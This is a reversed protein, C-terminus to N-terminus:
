RKGTLRTLQNWIGASVPKFIYTKRYNVTECVGFRRKFPSIGAGFKDNEAANVSVQGLYYRMFGEKRLICAVKWHLYHSAGANNRTNGGFAYAASTGFTTVCAASLPKTGESVVFIRAMRVAAMCRFFHSVFAPNPQQQPNLGYTEALLRNLSADDGDDTLALGANEAKRIQRRHHEHIGDWLSAEDRNLDIWANGFEFTDATKSRAPAMLLGPHDYYGYARFFMPRLKRLLAETNNNLAAIVDDKLGGGCSIAEGAQLVYGGFPKLLFRCRKPQYVYLKVGGLLVNGNWVELYVPRQGFFAQVEDFFTTQHLNSCCSCQDNWAASDTPRGPSEHFIYGGNM